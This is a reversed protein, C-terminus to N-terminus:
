PCGIKSTIFIFSYIQDVEDLVFGRTGPIGGGIDIISANTCGLSRATDILSKCLNIGKCIASPENCPSGSHFSFGCLEIGHAISCNILEVCEEPECGFKEGLQITTEKTDCRIRILIRSILQSVIFNPYNCIFIYSIMKVINKM